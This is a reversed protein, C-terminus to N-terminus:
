EGAVHGGHFRYCEVATEGFTKIEDAAPTDIGDIIDGSKRRRQFLLVGRPTLLRGLAPVLAPMARDDYPPDFFIIDYRGDCSQIFQAADQVIFRCRDLVGFRAAHERILSILARDQEIFDVAAAGRSLMEFGFVGSGACLDAARSGPLDPSLMDAISQRTRELTPRFAPNKEGCRIVRGRLTGSVIRLKM